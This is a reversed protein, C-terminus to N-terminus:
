ILLKVVRAKCYGAEVERGTDIGIKNQIIFDLMPENEAWTKILVEGPALDAEPINVTATAVPGENDFLSIALRGNAYVARELWVTYTTGLAVYTYLDRAM